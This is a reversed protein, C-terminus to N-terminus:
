KQTHGAHRVMEKCSKECKRCEKACMQMHKDDAFKECATACRACAEACGQCILAAFPGGRAVIQAATACFDACDRCTELTTIHEKHGDRLMHACHTSCMDCARQCDACAKACAELMGDHEGHQKDDAGGKKDDATVSGHLAAIALASLSAVGFERRGIM